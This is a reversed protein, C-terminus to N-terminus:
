NTAILSQTVAATRSTVGLRAYIHNLHARVTGESVDLRRAAQYNTCGQAVLELLERQRSTLASVARKRQARRYAADLHPTLLLLDSKHQEGFDTGPGRSCILRFTRGPGDPLYLVLMYEDGLPKMLERYLTCSRRDRLSQGDTTAFISPVDDSVRPHTCTKSREHRLLVQAGEEASPSASFSEPDLDQYDYVQQTVSDVGHFSVGDSGLLERLGSLVSQPMLAEDAPDQCARAVDRLSRLHLGGYANRGM